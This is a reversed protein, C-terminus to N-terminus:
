AEKGLNTKGNKFEEKIYMIIDIYNINVLYRIDEETFYEHEMDKYYVYVNDDEGIYIKYIIGDVLGFDNSDVCVPHMGLDDSEFTVEKCDALLQKITLLCASEYDIWKDELEKITFM